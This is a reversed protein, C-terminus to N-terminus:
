NGRLSYKYAQPKYRSNFHEQTVEEPKIGLHIACELLYQRNDPNRIDNDWESESTPVDTYRILMIEGNPFIVIGPAHICNEKIDSTLSDLSAEWQRHVNNVKTKVSLVGFIYGASICVIAIAFVLLNNITKM